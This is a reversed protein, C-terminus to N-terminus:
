KGRLKKLEDKYRQCVGPKCKKAPLPCDLCILAEASANRRAPKYIESARENKAFIGVWRLNSGVEPFKDQRMEWVEAYPQIGYRMLMQKRTRRANGHM